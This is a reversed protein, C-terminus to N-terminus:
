EDLFCFSPSLWRWREPFYNQMIQIDPIYLKACVHLQRKTPQPFPHAFLWAGKWRETAKLSGSRGVRSEALCTPQGTSRHGLSGRGRQLLHAVSATNDTTNNQKEQQIRYCDGQLRKLGTETDHHLLSLSASSCMLNMCSPALTKGSWTKLWMKRFLTLGPCWEETLACKEGGLNCFGVSCPKVSPEDAPMFFLTTMIEASHGSGQLFRYIRNKKRWLRGLLSSVMDGEDARQM